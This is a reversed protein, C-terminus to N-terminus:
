EEANHQELLVDAAQETKTIVLQLEAILWLYVSYFEKRNQM